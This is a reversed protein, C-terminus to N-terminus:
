FSYGAGVILTGSVANRGGATQWPGVVMSASVEVKQSPTWVGGALLGYYKEEAHWTDDLKDVSAFGGLLEVPAGDLQYAAAISSGWSYSPDVTRGIEAQVRLGLNDTLPATVSAYPGAAVTNIGPAWVAAGVSLQWRGEELATIRGEHDTVQGELNVIIVTVDTFQGELAGIRGEHDTLAEWVLTLQVDMWGKDPLVRTGPVCVAYGSGTTPDISGVYWKTAALRAARASDLVLQDVVPLHDSPHGIALVQDEDCFSDQQPPLGGAAFEYWEGGVFDNPLVIAQGALAPLSAPALDGAGFRPLTQAAYQEYAAQQEQTPEGAQAPLGLLAAMIAAALIRAFKAM